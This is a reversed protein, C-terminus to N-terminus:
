GAEIPEGHDRSWEPPSIEYLGGGFERIVRINGLKEIGPISELLANCIPCLDSHYAENAQVEVVSRRESRTLNDAWKRYQERGKDQDAETFKGFWSTNNFCFLGRAIHINFDNLQKFTSRTIYRMLHYKRGPASGYKYFVPATKYYRKGCARYIWQSWLRRIRKLQKKGIYGHEILVNLHPHYHQFQLEAKHEAILADGYYHWRSVGRSDPFERALLRHIYRRADRMMAVSEFAVRAVLPVEMVIYGVQDMAFVRPMIRGIRRVHHSSGDEGCIPCWERGCAFSSFLWHGNECRKMMGWRGCQAAEDGLGLYNTKRRKFDDNFERFDEHDDFVKGAILESGATGGAKLSHACIGDASAETAATTHNGGADRGYMRAFDAITIGFTPKM